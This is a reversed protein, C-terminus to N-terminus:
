CMQNVVIPKSVGLQKKISRGTMKVLNAICKSHKHTHIDNKRNSSINKNRLIPM